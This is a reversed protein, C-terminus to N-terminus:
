AKGHDIIAHPGINRFIYGTETISFTFRYQSSVYGEWVNEEQKYRHINLSPHRPNNVFLELKKDFRKQLSNPLRQYNCKFTETFILEQAM